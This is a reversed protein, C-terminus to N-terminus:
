KEKSSSILKIDIDEDPYYIFGAEETEVMIGTSLYGGGVLEDKILWGEYGDLAINNEYDCVVIGDLGDVRVIDGLKIEEVSDAYKM